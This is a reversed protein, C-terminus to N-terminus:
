NPNLKPNTNPTSNPGSGSKIQPPNITNKFPLCKKRTLPYILSSPNPPPHNINEPYIPFRLILILVPKLAIEWSNVLSQKHKWHDQSKSVELRKRSAVERAMAEKEKAIKEDYDRLNKLLHIHKQM